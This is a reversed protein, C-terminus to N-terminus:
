SRAFNRSFKCSETNYKALSGLHAVIFRIIYVKGKSKSGERELGLFRKFTKTM